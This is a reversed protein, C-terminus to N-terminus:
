PLLEFADVHRPRVGGFHGRDLTAIETVDLREAAAIVSADVTGLPFDQYQWVLDLIREWDGAGVPEAIFSGVALDGLFRVEANTGLRDAAFYAVEGTVLVPVILPGRHHELLDACRAHHADDPDLTAVLPGTDVVLAM